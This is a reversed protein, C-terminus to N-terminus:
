CTHARTVQQSDGSPMRASLTVTGEAAQPVQAPVVKGMRPLLRELAWMTRMPGVPFSIQLGMDSSKMWVNKHLRLPEDDAVHSPALPFPPVQPNSTVQVNTCNFLSEVM